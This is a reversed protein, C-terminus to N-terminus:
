QWKWLLVRIRHAIFKVIKRKNQRKRRYVNESLIQLVFLKTRNDRRKKFNEAKCFLLAGRWHQLTYRLRPQTFNTKM